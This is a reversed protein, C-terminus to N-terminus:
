YCHLAAAVAAVLRTYKGALSASLPQFCLREKQHGKLQAAELLNQFCKLPPRIAKFLAM